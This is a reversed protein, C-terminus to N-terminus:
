VAEVVVAVVEVRQLTVQLLLVQELAVERQLLRERRARELREPLLIPPGGHGLEDDRRVEPQLFPDRFFLAIERLFAEVVFEARGDARPVGPLLMEAIPDPGIMRDPSPALAVHARGTVPGDVDRGRGAM